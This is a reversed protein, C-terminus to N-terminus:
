KQRKKIEEDIDWVETKTGDPQDRKVSIEDGIQHNRPDGLPMVYDTPQWIPHSSTTHIPTQEVTSDIIRSKAIEKMHSVSKKTSDTSESSETPESTEDSKSANKRHGIDYIEKADDIIKSDEPYQGAQAIFEPTNHIYDREDVIKDRLSQATDSVTKLADGLSSGNQMLDVVRAKFGEGQGGLIADDAGEMDAHSVKPDTNEFVIRDGYSMVKRMTDEDVENKGTTNLFNGAAGIADEDEEERESPKRGEIIYGVMEALLTDADDMSSFHNLIDEEYRDGPMRDRSIRGIKAPNSEDGVFDEEFVKELAMTIAKVMSYDKSDETFGTIGKTKIHNYLETLYKRNYDKSLEDAIMDTLLDFQNGEYEDSGFEILKGDLGSFGRLPIGLDQIAEIKERESLDGRNAINEAASETGLDYMKFINSASKTGISNVGTMKNVTKIFNVLGGTMGSSKNPRYDKNNSIMSKITKSNYIGASKAIRISKNFEDAFSESPEFLTPISESLERSKDILETAQELEGKNAASDLSVFVAVTDVAFKELSELYKHYESISRFDEEHPMVSSFIDYLDEYGKLKNPLSPSMSKYGNTDLYKSAMVSFLLLNSLYNNETRRAPDICYRYVLGNRIIKADYPTYEVPPNGFQLRKLWSQFVNDNYVGGRLHLRDPTFHGMLKTYRSTLPYNKLRSNNEENLNSTFYLIKGDGEDKVPLYSESTDNYKTMPYYGNRRDDNAQEIAKKDSTGRRRRDIMRHIVDALKQDPNKIYEEKAIDQTLAKSGTLEGDMPLFASVDSAEFVDELMSLFGSNALNYIPVKKGLISIDTENTFKDDSNGLGTNDGFM